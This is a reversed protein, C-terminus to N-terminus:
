KKSKNKKQLDGEFGGEYNSFFNSYIVSDIITNIFFRSDSSLCINTGFKSVICALIIDFLYKKDKEKLFLMDYKNYFQWNFELNFELLINIIYKIYNKIKKKQEETLPNLNKEKKELM